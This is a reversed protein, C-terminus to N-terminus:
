RRSRARSVDGGPYRQITPAIAAVIDDDMSALTVIRAIPTPGAPGSHRRNTDDERRTRRYSRTKM